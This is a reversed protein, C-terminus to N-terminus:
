FLVPDRIRIRLMSKKGKWHGIRPETELIVDLRKEKLDFGGKKTKPEM